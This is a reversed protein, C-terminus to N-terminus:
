THPHPHSTHTHTDNLSPLVLLPSLPCALLMCLRSGLSVSLCVPLCASLCVCVSFCFSFMPYLACHASSVLMQVSNVNPFSSFPLAMSASVAFAVGIILVRPMQLDVGVAPTHTPPPPPSLVACCRVACSLVSNSSM